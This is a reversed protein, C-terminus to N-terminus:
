KHVNDFTRRLHPLHFAKQCGPPKLDDRADAFDAPCRLFDEADPEVLIDLDANESGHAVGDALGHDEVMFFRLAIDHHLETYAMIGQKQFVGLGGQLTKATLSRRRAWLARGQM